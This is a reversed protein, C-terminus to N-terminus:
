PTVVFQNGDFYLTSAEFVNPALYVPEVDSQILPGHWATVSQSSITIYWRQAALNWVVSLTYPSGDLTVTAAFPPKGNPNLSFPINM